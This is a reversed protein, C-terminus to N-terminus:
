ALGSLSTSTSSVESDSTKATGAKSKRQAQSPHSATSKALAIANSGQDEFDAKWEGLKKAKFSSANSGSRGTDEFDAEWDKLKKSQGLDSEVISGPKSPV